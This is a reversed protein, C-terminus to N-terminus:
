SWPVREELEALRRLERLKEDRGGGAARTMRVLDPTGAVIPQVGRGTQRLEDAQQAKIEPTLPVLDYQGAGLHERGSVRRLDRDFGLTGAPQVIVRLLGHRTRVDSVGEVKGLLKRAAARAGMRTLAGDLRQENEAGLAPAIDVGFSLREAGRISAALGGVLCYGVRAQELEGLISRPSGVLGAEACRELARAFREAPSLRLNAEIAERLDDDWSVLGEDLDFGCARLVRQVVAFGPDVTGSEWRAVQPAPRGLREGVERQSLGARLRAERILQGATVTM